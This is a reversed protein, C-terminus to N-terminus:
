LVSRIEKPIEWGFIEKFLSGTMKAISPSPLESIISAAEHNNRSYYDKIGIEASMALSVFRIRRDRITKSHQLILLSLPVENIDNIHKALSELNRKNPLSLSLSSDDIFGTLALPTGLQETGVELNLKRSAINDEFNPMNFDVVLDSIIEKEIDHM